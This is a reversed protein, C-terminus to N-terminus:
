FQTQYPYNKHAMSHNNIAMEIEIRGKEHRRYRQCLSKEELAPATTRFEVSKWIGLILAYSSYKFKTPQKTSFIM